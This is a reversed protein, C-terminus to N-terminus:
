GALPERDAASSLGTAVPVSQSRHPLVTWGPVPLAHSAHGCVVAVTRLTPVHKENTNRLSAVLDGLLLVIPGPGPDTTLRGLAAIRVNRGALAVAGGLLAPWATDAIAIGPALQRLEARDTEPLFADQPDVAVFGPGETGCGCRCGTQEAPLVLRIALVRGGAAARLANLSRDDSLGNAVAVVVSPEEAHQMCHM